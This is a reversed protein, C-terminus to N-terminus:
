PAGAGAGRSVALFDYLKYIGLAGTAAQTRHGTRVEILTQEMRRIRHAAPRWPLGADEFEDRVTGAGIGLELRGDSLVDLTAAERAMLAPVWFGGNLVYTRLRLRGTVAAAATLLAFPAPGGLHDAAAIFDLELSEVRRAARQLDERSGAPPNASGSGTSSILSSEDYTTRDLV